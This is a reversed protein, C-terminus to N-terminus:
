KGDDSRQALSASRVSHVLSSEVEELLRDPSVPKALFRGAGMELLSKIEKVTVMASMILTPIKSFEENRLIAAVLERGDLNPMVVDTIILAIQSNDQLVSLAKVGDSAYIVQHGDRKLINGIAKRTSTDDDVVLIEAM